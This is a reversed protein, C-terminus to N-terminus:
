SPQSVDLWGHVTIEPTVAPDDKTLKMTLNFVGYVKKWEDDVVTGAGGSIANYVYQYGNFQDDYTYSAAFEKYDLHASKRPFVFRFTRDLKPAGGLEIVVEVSKEHFHAIVSEAEYKGQGDIEVQAKGVVKTEANM